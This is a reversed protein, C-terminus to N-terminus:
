DQTKDKQMSFACIRTIVGDLRFIGKLKINNKCTYSKTKKQTASFTVRAWEFDKLNRKM